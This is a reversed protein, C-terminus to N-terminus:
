MQQFKSCMTGGDPCVTFFLFKGLLNGTIKVLSFLDLCSVSCPYSKVIHTFGHHNIIYIYVPIM